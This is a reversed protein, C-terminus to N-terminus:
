KLVARYEKGIFVTLTDTTLTNSKTLSVKVAVTHRGNTLAESPIPYDSLQLGVTMGQLPSLKRPGAYAMLGGMKYDKGDWIITQSWKLAIPDLYNTVGINRYILDMKLDAPTDFSVKCNLVLELPSSSTQVPNAPTSNTQASVTCFAALFLIPILHHKKM